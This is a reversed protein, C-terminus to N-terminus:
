DGSPLPYYLQVKVGNAAINKHLHETFDVQKGLSEQYKEALTEYWTNLKEIKTFDIKDYYKEKLDTGKTLIARHLFPFTLIDALTEHEQDNFYGTQSKELEDNLKQLGDLFKKEGGSERDEKRFIAIIFDISIKLLEGSNEKLKKQNEENGPLLDVGDKSYNQAWESVVDSEVIIKGDPLEIFPVLGGNINKHWKNKTTLDVGVFQHPIEKAKFAIRAREVFPCLPHGYLRIYNKNTRPKATEGDLIYLTELSQSDELPTYDIPYPLKFEANERRTLVYNLWPTKQVVYKGVKPHQELDKLYEEVKPFEPMEVLGAERAYTARRLVPSIIIDALTVEEMDMLYKNSPSNAVLSEEIKTIIQILDQLSDEQNLVTGKFMQGVLQGSDISTIFTTLASKQPELNTGLSLTLAYSIIKDSGPIVTGDTLELVPVTGGDDVFYKPKQNLDIDAIQFEVDKMGLIMRGREAFPCLPNNYVRSYVTNQPPREDVDGPCFFHKLSDTEVGEWKDGSEM